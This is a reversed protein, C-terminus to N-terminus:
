VEGESIVEVQPASRGAVWAVHKLVGTLNEVTPEPISVSSTIRAGRLEYSLNLKM